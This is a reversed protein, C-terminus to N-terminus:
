LFTVLKDTAAERLADNFVGQNAVRHDAAMVMGWMQEGYYGADDIM